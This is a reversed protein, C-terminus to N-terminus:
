AHHLLRKRSFASWIIADQVLIGKLDMCLLLYCMLLHLYLFNCNCLLSTCLYLVILPQWGSSFCQQQKWLVLHLSTDVKAMAGSGGARKLDTASYNWFGHSKVKFTQLLCLSELGIQIESKMQVFLLMPVNASGDASHKPTSQLYFVARPLWWLRFVHWFPPFPM